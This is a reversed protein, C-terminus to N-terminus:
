ERFISYNWETIIIKCYNPTLAEDVCREVQVDEVKLGKRRFFLVSLDTMVAVLIIEVAVLIIM